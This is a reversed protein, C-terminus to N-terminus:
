ISILSQDLVISRAKEIWALAKEVQPKTYTEIAPDTM